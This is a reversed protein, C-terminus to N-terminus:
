ARSTSLVSENKQIKSKDIKAFVLVVSFAEQNKQFYARM